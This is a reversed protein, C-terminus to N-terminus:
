ISTEITMPTYIYGWDDMRIKLPTEILYVMWRYIPTGGHRNPFGRAEWTRIAMFCRLEAAFFYGDLMWRGM